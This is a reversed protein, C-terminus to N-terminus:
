QEGKFPEYKFEKIEELSEEDRTKNIVRRKRSRGVERLELPKRETKKTLSYTTKDQSKTM